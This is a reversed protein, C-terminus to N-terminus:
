VIHYSPLNARIWSDLPSACSIDKALELEGVEAKCSSLSVIMRVRSASTIERQDADSNSKQANSKSGCCIRRCEGCRSRYLCLDDYDYLRRYCSRPFSKCRTGVGGARVGRMGWSGSRTSRRRSTRFHVGSRVVRSSMRRIWTHLSTDRTSCRRCCRAWRKGITRLDCDGGSRQRHLHPLDALSFSASSLRASTSTNAKPVRLPYFHVAGSFCGPSSSRPGPGCAVRVGVHGSIETRLHGVVPPPLRDVEAPARLDVRGGRRPQRFHYRDVKPHLRVGCPRHRHVGDLARSSDPGGVHTSRGFVAHRRPCVRVKATNCGNANYRLVHYDLATTALSECM